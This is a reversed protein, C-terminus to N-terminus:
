RTSKGESRGFRIYRALRIRLNPNRKQWERRMARGEQRTLSVAACREWEDGHGFNAEIVWIVWNM